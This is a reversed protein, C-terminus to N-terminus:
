LDKIMLYDGHEEVYKIIRYGLREYFRAARNEKQVSLSTQRYRRERLLEFLHTM